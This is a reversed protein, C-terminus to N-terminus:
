SNLSHLQMVIAGLIEGLVYFLVNLMFRHLVICMEHEHIDLYRYLFQIPKFMGLYINHFNALVNILYYPVIQTWGQKQAAVDGM